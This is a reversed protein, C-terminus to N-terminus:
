GTASPKGSPSYKFPRSHWLADYGPGTRVARVRSSRSIARRKYGSLAPLTKSACDKSASPRACTRPCCSAVAAMWRPACTLADWFSIALLRHLDIAARVLDVGVECRTAALGPLQM